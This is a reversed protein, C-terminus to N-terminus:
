YCGFTFTLPLYSLPCPLLALGHRVQQRPAYAFFDPHVKLYFRRLAIKVPPSTSSSSPDGRRPSTSLSRFQNSFSASTSISTTTVDQRPPPVISSPNLRSSPSSAALCPQVQAMSYYNCREQPLRTPSIPAGGNIYPFPRIPARQNPVLKPAQLSEEQELISCHIQPSQYLASFNTVLRSLHRRRM